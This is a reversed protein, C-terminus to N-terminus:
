KHKKRQENAKTSFEGCWDDPLTSPHSYHDPDCDICHSGVAKFFEFQWLHMAMPPSRRCVGWTEDGDDCHWFMCSRCSEVM